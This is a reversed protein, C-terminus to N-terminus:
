HQILLPQTTQIRTENIRIYYCGSSVENLTITAENSNATKSFIKEGLPGYVEISHIPRGSSKVTFVGSSPNPYVTFAEAESESIGVATSAPPVKLVFVDTRNPSGWDSTFVIFKGDRSICSRPSSWYASGSNHNTYDSHHHALRRVNQTGDTAVQFIEDKFIGSSPLTGGTYTSVLMWAENDGLMSLHNDMSWDNFYDLVTIFTHQNVLTRYLLRNKWNENGIVFGTANDSHGPSFDPGNDTLNQVTKTQLDLIKVEIVGAGSQGTKIVLYAGAKDVQVEDLGALNATDTVGTSANYILYGVETYNVKERYTFAFVSDNISRSMQSLYLNSYYASFDKILTYINTSVNYSWIKQGTHCLLINNQTGSWIADESSPQGEAPPNSQFMARKNSIALAATDFDYLTANGGVSSVYLLSSNKNLCPWYSYSHHNDAGDTADTVRLISTGFTPDVFSIGKAPIAPTAPPLYVGHDYKISQAQLFGDFFFLMSYLIYRKM